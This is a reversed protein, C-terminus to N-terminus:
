ANPKDIVFANELCIDKYVLASPRVTRTLTEYDIAVLGFRMGYGDAWEYNDLLSWYFFGRVDVGDGLARHLAHVSRKIYEARFTDAADACGAETVYLPKGYRALRRLVECLGEPYIEWGIDTKPLRGMDGFKVHRYYNVGIADYTKGLQWLFQTTTLWTMVCAAIRYFPNRTAHYLRVNHVISVSFGEHVQKIARYASRHARVMGREIRLFTLLNKKFPPWIGVVWGQGAFVMSENMTTFHTCLDGLTDVVHACYRAFVEPADRRLFGGSESFWLPQTFHWLTIMPEINRKRLARLVARYHEIADEDFQGEQPEIRAWEVSFRHANHGLSHAITFDEEYRHYQDSSRGAPPVRGNRAADAWDTNEIGGEVQYSATAAGWLFTEPFELRQM